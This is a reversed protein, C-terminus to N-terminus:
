SETVVVTKGWDQVITDREQMNMGSYKRFMAMGGKKRRWKVFDIFHDKCLSGTGAPAYITNTCGGILCGEQSM